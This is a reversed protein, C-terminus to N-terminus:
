SGAACGCTEDRPDSSTRLQSRIDDSAVNLHDGKYSGFAGVEKDGAIATLDIDHLAPSELGLNGVM